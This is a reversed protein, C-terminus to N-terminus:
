ATVDIHSGLLRTYPLKIEERIMHFNNRVVSRPRKSFM